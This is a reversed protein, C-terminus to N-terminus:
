KTGTHKLINIIEPNDTLMLATNGDKDKENISSGNSILLKVIEVSGRAAGFMLPTQNAATKENVKAKKSLLYEAMQMNGKYVALHLPTVGGEKTKVNVNAGQSVLYQAIEFYGNDVANMLPTANDEDAADVKAGKSVLLKVMELQGDYQVYGGTADNTFPKWAAQYLGAKAAYKLPTAGKKTKANVDAGKDILYKAVAFHGNWIATHLLTQGDEDKLNVDGGENIFKEIEELKGAKVSEYPQPQAFINQTIVVFFLGFILLLFNIKRKLAYTKYM